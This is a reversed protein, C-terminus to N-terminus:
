STYKLYKKKLKLHPHTQNSLCFEFVQQLEADNNRLNLPQCTFLMIDPNRPEKGSATPFFENGLENLSNVSCLDSTRMEKKTMQPSAMRKSDEQQDELIAVQMESGAFAHKLQTMKVNSFERERSDGEKM